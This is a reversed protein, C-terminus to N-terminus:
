TGVPRYVSVPGGSSAVWVFAQVARSYSWRKGAVYAVPITSTAAFARRTVTWAASLDPPVALEYVGNPDAPALLVFRDIEPVYDFPHSWGGRSPINSTLRPTLWGAEPTACRLYALTLNGSVTASLLLADRVPDYRMTMSDPQAPPAPQANRSFAVERQERSEVDLFRIMPPLASLNAVWWFRNRKEDYASCAGPALYRSPANSSWRTWRGRTMATTMDFRHSWGTDCSIAVHVAHSSVRILSGAAAGGAAPPLIALTDYTHGAGPQGDAYECTNRDFLADGQVHNFSTPSSPQSLRKFTLDNYDLILVSNDYTSAHGGGHFVMAGMAGWHPNYVGGSFDDIITGFRSDWAPLTNGRLSLFTNSTQIVRLEGPAPVWPPLSLRPTVGGASDPPAPAPQPGPSVPAPQLSPSPGTPTAAFVDLADSGGCGMLASTASALSGILVTRRKVNRERKEM